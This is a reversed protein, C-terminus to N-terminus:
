TKRSNQTTIKNVEAVRVPVQKAPDLVYRPPDMNPMWTVGVVYAKLTFTHQVNNVDSYTTTTEGGFFNEIAFRVGGDIVPQNGDVMGETIFPIRKQGASVLRTGLNQKVNMAAFPPMAQGIATGFTNGQWVGYDYGGFTEQVEVSVLQCTEHQVPRFTNPYGEIYMAAALDTEDSGQTFNTLLFNAIMVAINGNQQFTWKIRYCEDLILAM